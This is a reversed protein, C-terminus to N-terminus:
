VVVPPVPNEPDKGLAELKAVEARLASESEPSLGGAAILKMIRAAIADTATDFRTIIEAIKPDVVTDGETLEALDLTQALALNAQQTRHLVILLERKTM